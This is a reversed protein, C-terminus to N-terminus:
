GGLSSVVWDSPALETRLEEAVGVSVQIDLLRIVRKAGAKDCTQPRDDAEDCRLSHKRVGLSLRPVERLGPVQGLPLFPYTYGIEGHEAEGLLWAWHCPLCLGM